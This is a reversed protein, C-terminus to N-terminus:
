MCLCTSCMRIHKSKDGGFRYIYMNYVKYAICIYAYMCTHYHPQAHHSDLCVIINGGPRVIQRVWLDYVFIFRSDKEGGGPATKGIDGILQCYFCSLIMAVCDRNYGKSM